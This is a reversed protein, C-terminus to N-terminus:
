TCKSVGLQEKLENHTFKNAVISLVRIRGDHGKNNKYFANKFCGM